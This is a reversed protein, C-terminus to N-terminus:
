ERRTASGANSAGSGTASGANSRAKAREIAEKIEQETMGPKLQEYHQPEVQPEVTGPKPMRKASGQDFGTVFNSMANACPRTLVVVGILAIVTFSIRVLEPKSLRLGRGRPLKPVPEEDRADASV